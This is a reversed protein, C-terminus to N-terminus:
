ATTIGYAAAITALAATVEARADDGAYTFPAQVLGVISTLAHRVTADPTAPTPADTTDTTGQDTPQRQEPAKAQDTSAQQPQTGDGATIAGRNTRPAIPDRDQARLTIERRFTDLNPLSGPKGYKDLDLVDKALTGSRKRVDVTTGDHTATAPLGTGSRTLNFAERALRAKRADLDGAKDTDLSPVKLADMIRATVMFHTVVAASSVGLIDATRKGKVGAMRLARCAQVADWTAGEAIAVAQDAASNSALAIAGFSGAAIRDLVDATATDGNLVGEVAHMAVTRDVTGPDPVVTPVIPTGDLHQADRTAVTTRANRPM